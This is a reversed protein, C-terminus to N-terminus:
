AAARLAKRMAESAEVRRQMARHKARLVASEVMWQPAMQLFQEHLEMCENLATLEPGTLGWRGGHRAARHSCALAAECGAKAIPMAQGCVEAQTADGGKSSQQSVHEVLALTIEAMAALRAGHTESGAGHTIATLAAHGQMALEKFQEGPIPTVGAIAHQVPNALRPGPTFRRQKSSGRQARAAARRQERNM